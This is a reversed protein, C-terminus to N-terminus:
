RSGVYRDLLREGVGAVYQAGALGAVPDPAGDLAGDREGQEHVGQDDQPVGPVAMVRSVDIVAAGGLGPVAGLGLRGELVHEDLKAPDQDGGSKGATM